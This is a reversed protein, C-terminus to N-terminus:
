VLKWNPSSKYTESYTYPSYKNNYGQIAIIFNKARNTSTTTWSWNDFEEIQNPFVMVPWINRTPRGCMLQPFDTGMYSGNNGFKPGRKTIDVLKFEIKGLYTRYKLRLINM